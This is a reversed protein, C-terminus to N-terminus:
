RSHVAHFADFSHGLGRSLARTPCGDGTDVTFAGEESGLVEGAPGELLLRQGIDVEVVLHQLCSLAEDANHIARRFERTGHLENSLNYARANSGGAGVGLSIVVGEHACYLSSDAMDGVGVVDHRAHVMATGIHNTPHQGTVRHHSLEDGIAVM